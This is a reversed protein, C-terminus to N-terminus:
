QFLGILKRPQYTRNNLKEVEKKIDLLMSTNVKCEGLWTLITLENKIRRRKLLRERRMKSFVCGEAANFSKAELRHDLDSLEKDVDSLMDVLEKRRDEAEQVFNTFSNLRNCWEVIEADDVDGEEFAIAFNVQQEPENDVEKGDPKTTPQNIIPPPSVDEVEVVRYRNRLNKCVSNNLINQATKRNDWAEALIKKKVPIFNGQADRRLYNKKGDFLLFAM